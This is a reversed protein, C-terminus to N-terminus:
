GAKGADALRAYYAGEAHFRGKTSVLAEAAATVAIAYDIAATVDGPAMQQDVSCDRRWAAHRKLAQLKKSETIGQDEEREETRAQGTSPYAKVNDVHGFIVTDTM